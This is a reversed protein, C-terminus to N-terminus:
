RTGFRAELATRAARLAEGITATDGEAFDGEGYARKRHDGQALVWVFAGSDYAEDEWAADFFLVMEPIYEGIPAIGLFFIDVWKPEGTEDLDGVILHPRWAAPFIDLQDPVAALAGAISLQSLRHNTAGVSSPALAGAVTAAIGSQLVTRRTILDNRQM